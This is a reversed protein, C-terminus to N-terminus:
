AAKETQLSRGAGTQAATLIAAVMAALAPDDPTRRRYRVWQADRRDVVLGADRLTAMHRSMAPQSTSSIEMLECLCMETGSSLAALAARRVPHSLAQLLIDLHTMSYKHSVDCIDDNVNM